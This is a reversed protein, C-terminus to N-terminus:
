LISSVYLLHTLLLVLVAGVFLSSDVCVCVCVLVSFPHSCSAVMNPVPHGRPELDILSFVRLSFSLMVAALRCTGFPWFRWSVSNSSSWWGFVWVCVCVSM